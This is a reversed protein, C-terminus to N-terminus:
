WTNIYSTHAREGQGGLSQSTGAEPRKSICNTQWCSPCNVLSALDVSVECLHFPSRVIDVALPCQGQSTYIAYKNLDPGQCLSISSDSSTACIHHFRFPLIMSSIRPHSLECAALSGSLRLFVSQPM